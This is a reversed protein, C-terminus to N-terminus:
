ARAVRAHRRYASVEELAEALSSEDGWVAVPVGAREFRGRVAERRLRWVRLGLEQAADKPHPLFSLPSVEVVVLDFGRGRLDLLAATSRDDLLPTLAIVLAHPPLTRRPIVDVEKWAYSLVIQTDLMADVIRYLQRTGSSPLLWNLFGGFSVFGVRDRQRLYRAVISAAARVAPDLTSREGRRAEAFADLFVVLDANREPHHENVWLQGRRASARWNVHRVRDGPVFPRLDAFEIGEGRQVAVHNGSYVQTELPRLLNRMAEDRPFVKLPVREDLVAEHTFLGFLDNARVFLRGIRFGGWRTCSVPFSLEHSAGDPLHISVPNLEASTKLEAPLELLLEAREAGVEADVTVHVVVEEGELVRDRELEVHARLEPRRVQLQGVAAVVAFPAALVVLEPLRAALAALLGLAALAAYATLKASAARSM